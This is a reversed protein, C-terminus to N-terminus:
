TRSIMRSDSSQPPGVGAAEMRSVQREAKPSGGPESMALWDRRIGQALERNVCTSPSITVAPDVIGDDDHHM